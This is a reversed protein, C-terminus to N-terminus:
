FSYGIFPGVNTRFDSPIGYWDLDTGVGFTLRAKSVGFRLHVFSRASLAQRVIYDNFIQANGYFRWDKKLVPQYLMALVNQVDHTGSLFVSPSLVFVLSRRALLYQVGVTVNYGTQPGLAVGVTPSIGKYVDYNLQTVNVFDFATTDNGYKGQASTISLLGGKSTPTFNKSIFTQLDFRDNGFLGEVYVPPSFPAPKASVTANRTPPPADSLGASHPPAQQESSSTQVVDPSAAGSENQASAGPVLLPCALVIGLRLVRTISGTM